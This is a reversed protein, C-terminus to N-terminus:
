SGGPSVVDAVGWMAFSLVLLGLLGKVIIGSSRKRIAELM